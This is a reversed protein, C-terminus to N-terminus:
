AGAPTHEVEVECGEGRLRGALMQAILWVAAKWSQHYNCHRRATGNGWKRAQPRRRPSGCWQALRFHSAAAKEM